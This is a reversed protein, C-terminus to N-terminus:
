TDFGGLENEIEHLTANLFRLHAITLHGIAFEITTDKGYLQEIASHDGKVIAALCAAAVRAQEYDWTHIEDGFKKMVTGMVKPKPQKSFLKAFLGM